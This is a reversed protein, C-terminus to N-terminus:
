AAVPAISAFIHKSAASKYRNAKNIHIIGRKAAKDLASVFQQAALKTVEPDGAQAAQTMRKALTKITSKVHRNRATRTITKRISKKSSKINAM